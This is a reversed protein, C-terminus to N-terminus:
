RSVRGRRKRLHGSVRFPPKACAISNRESRFGIRSPKDGMNTLFLVSETQEHLHWPNAGSGAWGDGENALRGDIVLNGRQEISVVEGM